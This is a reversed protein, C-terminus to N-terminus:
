SPVCSIWASMRPRACVPIAAKQILSVALFFTEDGKQLDPCYPDKRIEQRVTNEETQIFGYLKNFKILAVLM